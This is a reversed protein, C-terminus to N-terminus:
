PTVVPAIYEYVTVGSADPSCSLTVQYGIPEGSAYVVDGIETIKGLPVVIRKVKNGTLAIEFVYLRQPLEAGNHLVTLADSAKTVNEQGYVEKLVLENTEIFTWQFKETRSTRVTLVTNGGWEQIEETDMEISNTLGEDSVFGLNEIGTALAATANVPKTVTTAGSYIGGAAMPKGVSVNASSNAAMTNEEGLLLVPVSGDGAGADVAEVTRTTAKM